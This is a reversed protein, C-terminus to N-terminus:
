SADNVEAAKTAGASLQAELMRVAMASWSRGDKAALEAIRADLTRPLTLMKRINTPSIM